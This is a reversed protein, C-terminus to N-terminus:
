QRRAEAIERPRLTWSAVHRIVGDLLPPTGVVQFEYSRDLLDYYPSPAQGTVDLMRYLAVTFVYHGNGLEVPGWDLDLVANEGATAAFAVRDGIVRTVLVGDRRYLVAVPIVMHTGASTASFLIELHLRSGVRFVAAERGHSDRVRVDDIRLIGEGPWRRVKTTDSGAEAPVDPGPRPPLAIRVSHWEETPGGVSQGRIEEGNLAVRARIEGAAGTRRCLLDFAYESDPHLYYLNFRVRAVAGDLLARFARDDRRPASWGGEELLVFSDHSRDADQADGVLLREEPAGDRLLTVAAIQWEGRDSGAGDLTVVLTDTQSDRSPEAYGAHVKRNRARLRRDELVQIFQQYAKVVELSPGRRVVRGRELWITEQCFRMVHDLSHSVLVVAAGQSVLREMRETSKNIFYADGAGLVEDIVLIGPQIATATAFGLRALMGASYTKIPQDLFDDLETFDAIDEEAARIEATTLGLLTLSARINDRGSLEEHFGAGAELLAHVRGSVRVRGETPQAAGILLRLLTTKGAGNRGIVGVRDGSSLSLNVDRLAWLERHPRSPRLVSSLGLADIFADRRSAYMTYMKGADELLVIAEGV